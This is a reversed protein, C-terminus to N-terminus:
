KFKSSSFYGNEQVCSVAKSAFVKPLHSIHLCFARTDHLTSPAHPKREGGLHRGHGDLFNKDVVVCGDDLVLNQGM